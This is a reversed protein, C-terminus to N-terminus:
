VLPFKETTQQFLNGKVFTRFEELTLCSSNQNTKVGISEIEVKIEEFSSNKTDLKDVDGSVDVDVTETKIQSNKLEATFKNYEDVSSFTNTFSASFTHGYIIGTIVHGYGGSSKFDKKITGGKIRVEETRKFACVYYEVEIKKKKDSSHYSGTVDMHSGQALQIQLSGSADFKNLSRDNKCYSEVKVNM